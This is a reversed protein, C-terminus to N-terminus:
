KVEIRSFSNSYKKLCKNDLTSNCDSSFKKLCKRCSNIDNCRCRHHHCTECRYHPRVIQSGSNPKCGGKPDCSVVKFKNINLCYEKTNCHFFYGIVTFDSIAQFTIEFSKKGGNLSPTKSLLNCSPKLSEIGIMVKDGKELCSTTELRYRAGPYTQLVVLFGPSNGKKCPDYSLNINGKSKSVKTGGQKQILESHRFLDFHCHKQINYNECSNLCARHIYPPSVCGKVM